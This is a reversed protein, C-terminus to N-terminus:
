DSDSAELEICGDAPATKASGGGQNLQQRLEKVEDSKKKVLAQLERFQKSDGLRRDLDKKMTELKDKTEALEKELEPNGGASSGSAAKGEIHRKLNAKVQELEQALKQRENQAATVERKLHTNHDKLERNEDRLKHLEEAPSLGATSPAATSVVSVADDGDDRKEKKEKKDKKEKKEGGVESVLATVADDQASSAPVAENQMKTVDAAAREAEEREKREKKEKKEKKRGM